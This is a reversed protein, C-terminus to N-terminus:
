LGETSTTSNQDPEAVADFLSRQEIQGEKGQQSTETPSLSPQLRKRKEKQSGRLRKLHMYSEPSVVPERLTAEAIERAGKGAKGAEHADRQLESFGQSDNKRHLSIGITETFILVGHEAITLHDRLNERQPVTKYAKHDKVSLDFAGKHMINTLAAFAKSSTVGRDTWEDTLENRVLDGQARTWAWEPEYGLQIYGQVM